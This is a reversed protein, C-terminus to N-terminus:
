QDKAAIAEVLDALQDAADPIGLALAAEAMQKALDDDTLISEASSRLTESDFEDEALVVAGGAEALGRANAAQEGRKAIALPVLISPRGIAAIDAVSSAGSRSIVLQAEAMRAPVDDFFRQVEARIGANAYAAIVAGEDAPRAQHSIALRARIDEPLEALGAPVVRSLISAGQSGGIVLVKLPWDGPPTYPQAARELVAARIPNGTHVGRVGAPLKTPWTGCAIVPVRKAFVENVKGLVGNQEHVLRPRKLLWAAAMAPFAPYGGFGIVCAPRERRMRFIATVVGGLIQFPAKLKALGGRAFTGASLVQREVARPFGGAYRAGREDTSLRVDWGRDLMVEALSQAPFMHGGTGGAAIILLPKM